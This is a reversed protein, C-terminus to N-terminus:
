ASGLRWGVATRASARAQRRVPVPQEELKGTNPHRTPHNLYVSTPYRTTRGTDLATPTLPEHEMLAPRNGYTCETELATPLPTHASCGTPSPPVHEMFPPTAVNLDSAETAAQRPIRGDGGATCVTVGPGTMM